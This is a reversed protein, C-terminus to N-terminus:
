GSGRGHEGEESGKRLRPDRIDEQRRQDDAERNPADFVYKM